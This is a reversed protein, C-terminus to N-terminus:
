PTSLLQTGREAERQAKREAALQVLRERFEKLHWQCQGRVSHPRFVYRGNNCQHEHPCDDDTECRVDCDCAPSGLYIGEYCFHGTTCRRCCEIPTISAEIAAEQAPDQQECALTLLAVLPLAYRIM